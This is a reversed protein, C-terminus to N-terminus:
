VDKLPNKVKNNSDCNELMEKWNPIIKYSLWEKCKDFIDM